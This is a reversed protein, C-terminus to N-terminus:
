SVRMDGATFLTFVIATGLEPAVAAAVMALLISLALRMWIGRTMPLLIGHFRCIRHNTQVPPAPSPKANHHAEGPEEADRDGRM